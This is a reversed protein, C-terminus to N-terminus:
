VTDKPATREVDPGAGGIHASMWVGAITRHRLVPIKSRKGLEAPGLARKVKEVVVPRHRRAIADGSGAAAGRANFSVADERIM